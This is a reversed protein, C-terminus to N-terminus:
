FIGYFIDLVEVTKEDIIATVLNGRRHNSFRVIWAFGQFSPYAHVGIQGELATKVRVDSKAIHLIVDARRPTSVAQTELSRAIQKAESVEKPLRKPNQQALDQLLLAHQRYADRHKQYGKLGYAILIKEYQAACMEAADAELQLVRVYDGKREALERQKRFFTPYIGFEYFRDPYRPLWTAIFKTINEREADLAPKPTGLKQWAIKARKRHHKYQEQIERTEKKARAAWKKYGRQSYYDHAIKNMPISIRMLCEAAAEHWLALEGFDGSREYRKIFIDATAAGERIAVCPHAILFFLPFLCLARILRQEGYPQASEPPRCM